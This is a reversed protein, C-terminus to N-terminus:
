GYVDIELDFKKVVDRLVEKVRSPVKLVVIGKISDVSKMIAQEVLERDLEKLVYKAFIHGYCYDTELMLRTHKEPYHTGGVGIVPKCSEVPGRELTEIIAEVLAQQAKKDSWEKESSGIEIFIIPKRPETPGHHTAELTFDYDDLLGLRNAAEYYALFLTKALRPYTWALQRPKGGYEPSVDTTPNGPYHLSLTPKRTISQHRSIIIYAKVNQPYIKDLYDLYIVDDTFGILHVNGCIYRRYVKHHNAEIAECQLLEVLKQAAEVGVKDVKSFAIGILERGM